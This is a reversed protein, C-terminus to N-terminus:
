DQCISMGATVIKGDLQKEITEVPTLYSYSLSLRHLFQDRCVNMSAKVLAGGLQNEITEIPAFVALTTEEPPEFYWM